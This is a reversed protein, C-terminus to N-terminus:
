KYTKIQEEGRIARLVNHALATLEDEGPYIFVPAIFKVREEVRSTIYQSNALAGTIIIADVHGNTVPALSGILRATQYLMANLILEAHNDGNSINQLIQPVDTTGLHAFLGSQSSVYKVMEDHSHKGSFCLDILQVVPLSGSRQVGFPGDGNLANNNEIARGNHHMAGSIGSGMHAVILDVKNYDKGHEKCFRKAIERQNLAHWFSLHPLEPCGTIRSIDALEDVAGPDAMFARCNPIKKAMDLAILSGLNCVHHYRPHMTDYVVKDNLEYVGSEIPKILGGRGVIADFNFPIHRKRLESEVLNKRYGFQEMENKFKSIENFSHSVSAHMVCTEDEFVGLKTSISGPNIALIRIM